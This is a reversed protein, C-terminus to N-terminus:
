SVYFFTYRWGSVEDNTKTIRAGLMYKIGSELDGNPITLTNNNTSGNILEESTAHKMGVLLWETSKLDASNKISVVNSTNSDLTSFDTDFRVTKDYSTKFIYNSFKSSDGSTTTVMVLVRYIRNEKLVSSNFTIKLKDYEDNKRSWIINGYLDEIIWTTSEHTSNGWITFNSIEIDFFTPRGLQNVPITIKPPNIFAPFETYMNITNVNKPYFANLIGWVTYGTSLRARSRAWYKTNIDLKTEFIISDLNSSNYASAVINNFQPDTAVEYDQGLHTVGTPITLNSIHINIM